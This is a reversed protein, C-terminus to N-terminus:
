ILSFVLQITVVAENNWTFNNNLFLMYCKKNDAQLKLRINLGVIKTYIILVILKNDRSFDFNHM